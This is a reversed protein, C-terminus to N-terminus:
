EFLRSGFYGGAFSGIIAAPIMCLMAMAAYAGGVTPDSDFSALTLWFGVNSVGAIVAGGLGGALVAVIRM